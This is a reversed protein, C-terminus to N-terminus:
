KLFRMRGEPVCKGETSTRPETLYRYIYFVAVAITFILIAWSM